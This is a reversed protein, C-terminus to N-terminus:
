PGPWTPPFLETDDRGLLEASTRGSFRASVANALLYRGALDKAFVADLTNDIVAQLLAHEQRLSAEAQRRRVLERRLAFNAMGVFVVGLACGAAILTTTLRSRHALDADRQRQLERLDAAMGDILGRVDDRPRRGEDAREAAHAADFGHSRRLDITRDWDAFLGPVLRRLEGVRRDLLPVDSSLAALRGLKEDLIPRAARYPRLSDDEGTFLYGRQAAEADRLLALSSELEQCLTRSAAYEDMTATLATTNAFSVASVAAVLALGLWFLFRLQHGPSIIM